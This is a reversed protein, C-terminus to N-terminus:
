NVACTVTAQAVYSGAKFTDTGHASLSATVVTAGLLSLTGSAAAGTIPLILINTGTLSVSMTFTTSPTGAPSSTWSTPKTVTLTAPATNIATITAPTTTVWSQLDSQLTLTGDIPATLTCASVALGRFNLTDSHANQTSGALCATIAIVVCGIRRASQKTIIAQDVIRSCISHFSSDM